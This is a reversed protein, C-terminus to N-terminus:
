LCLQVEVGPSVARRVTVLFRRWKLAKLACFALTEKPRPRLQFDVLSCMRPLSGERTAFTGSAEDGQTGQVLVLERVLFLLREAAGVARGLKRQLSCQVPVDGGVRPYAGVLAGVAGLVEDLCDRQSSVEETMRTEVAKWAVDTAVHERALRAKLLVHETYVFAEPLKRAVRAALFEGALIIEKCM